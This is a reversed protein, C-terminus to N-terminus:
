KVSQERSKQEHACSYGLVTYLVDRPIVRVGDAKSHILIVTKVLEKTEKSFWVHTQPSWKVYGSVSIGNLISISEDIINLTKQRNLFRYRKSLTESKKLIQLNELAQETTMQGNRVLRVYGKAYHSLCNLRSKTEIYDLVDESSCCFFSAVFLVILPLFFSFVIIAGIMIEMESNLGM